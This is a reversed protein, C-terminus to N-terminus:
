LDCVTYIIEQTKGKLTINEPLLVKLYVKVEVGDFSKDGSQFVHRSVGTVNYEETKKGSSYVITLSKAYKKLDESWAMTNQSVERFGSSITTIKEKKKKYYEHVEGNCDTLTKEEDGDSGYGEKFGRSILSREQENFRCTITKQQIEDEQVEVPENVPAENEHVKKLDEESQGNELIILVKNRGSSFLTGKGLENNIFQKLLPVSDFFITSGIVRSDGHRVLRFVRHKSTDPYNNSSGIPYSMMPTAKLSPNENDFIKNAEKCNLNEYIKGLYIVSDSHQDNIDVRRFSIKAIYNISDNQEFCDAFSIVEQPMSAHSTGVIPHDSLFDIEIIKDEKGQNSLIIYGFVLICILISGLFIYSKYKKM